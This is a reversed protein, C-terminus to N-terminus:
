PSLALPDPAVRGACDVVHVQYYWLRGTAALDQYEKARFAADEYLVGYPRTEDTATRRVQYHEWAAPDAATPWHLHATAHPDAGDLKKVRLAPSIGAPIGVSGVV